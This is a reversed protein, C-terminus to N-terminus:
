PKKSTKKNELKLELYGLIWKSNKKKSKIEKL